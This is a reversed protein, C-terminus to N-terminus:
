EAATEVPPMTITQPKTSAAALENLFQVATVNSPVCGRLGRVIAEAQRQTLDARVPYLAKPSPSRTVMAM